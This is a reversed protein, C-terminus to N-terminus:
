CNELEKELDSLLRSIEPTVGRDGPTYFIGPLMGKADLKPLLETMFEELAFESPEFHAWADRACLEAYERAPWVPFVEIGEATAALAWGDKYLGWVKESDAVQKIFHSYRERGPLKM